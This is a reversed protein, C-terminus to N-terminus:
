RKANSGRKKNGSLAEDDNSITNYNNVISNKRYVAV